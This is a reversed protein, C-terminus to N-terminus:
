GRCGAHVHHATHPRDIQPVGDLLDTRLLIFRLANGGGEGKAGEPSARTKGLSGLDPM